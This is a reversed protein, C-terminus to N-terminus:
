PYPPLLACCGIMRTCGLRLEGDETRRDGVDGDHDDDRRQDERHERIERDVVGLEARCGRPRAPDVV